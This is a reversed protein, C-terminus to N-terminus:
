ESLLIKQLGYAGIFLFLIGFLGRFSVPLNYKIIYEGAIMILGIAYLLLSFFLLMNQKNM